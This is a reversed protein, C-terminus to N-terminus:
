RKKHFFLACGLLFFAVSVLILPLTYGEYPTAIWTGWRQALVQYSNVIPIGLFFILSLIMFFIGLKKPSKKAYVGVLGIAFFGCGLFLLALGDFFAQLIFALSYAYIVYLPITAIPM